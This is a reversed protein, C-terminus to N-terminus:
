VVVINRHIENDIEDGTMIGSIASPNDRGTLFVFYKFTKSALIDKSLKRNLFDQLGQAHMSTFIHVGANFGECVATLEATTGIEDFIIVDPSLTRIAINIGVDKPYNNLCDTAYGLNFVPKGAVVGALEGRTDIVATKYIRKRRGGSLQRALDRLVTTKGSSPAGIFLTSAIKDIKNFYNDAAGAIERAIRINISSINKINIIKENLAVASGCLGARHGGKITIFGNNIDNQYTHVSYECLQRFCELIDSKACVLLDANPNTCTTGNERIFVCGKDTTLQLPMDTRLRIEYTTSTIHSPINLLINKIHFPLPSLASKFYDM